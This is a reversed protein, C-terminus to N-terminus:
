SVDGSLPSHSILAGARLLLAVVGALAEADGVALAAAAAEGFTAGAACADLLACAMRPCAVSSVADEPRTTLAGEGHWPVDALGTPPLPLLGRNIAWLTHVPVDDFWAWRAAPHPVLRLAGLAAGDLGQLLTPDVPEADRALHAETFQRDLHAIAAIAPIERAPPFRLLFAEFDRGYDLLCASDPPRERVYHAAAARLWSDGVLAVLAPYNALLADICGKMVTNRYVAFGPQASFGAADLPADQWLAHMFRDQWAALSTM